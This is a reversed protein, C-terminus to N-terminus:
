SWREGLMAKNKIIKKRGDNEYNTRENELFLHVSDVVVFIHKIEIGRAQLRTQKTESEPKCGIKTHKDSADEFCRWDFPKINSTVWVWNLISFAKILIAPIIRLMHQPQASLWFYVILMQPDQTREHM